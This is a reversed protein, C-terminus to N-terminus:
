RKLSKKDSFIKDSEITVDCFRGDPSKLEIFLESCYGDFKIDTMAGQVECYYEFTRILYTQGSVFDMPNQGVYEIRTDGDGDILTLKGGLDEINFLIGFNDKRATFKVQLDDTTVTLVNGELEVVATLGALDPAHSRELANLIERNRVEEGEFSIFKEKLGDDFDVAMYYEHTTSDLIKTDGYWIEPDDYYLEGFDIGGFVNSYDDFQAHSLIFQRTSDDPVFDCTEHIFHIINKDKDDEEEPYKLQPLIGDRFAKLVAPLALKELEGRRWMTHLVIRTGVTVCFRLLIRRQEPTLQNTSIM